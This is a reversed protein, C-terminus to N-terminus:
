LSLKPFQLFKTPTDLQYSKGDVYFSSKPRAIVVPFNLENALGLVSADNTFWHHYHQELTWDWPKEKYGIALGGPQSDKEYIMVEHGKQLLRLAATLGTFGAGIIAIKM